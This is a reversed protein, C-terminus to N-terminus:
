ENNASLLATCLELIVSKLLELLDVDKQLLYKTSKNLTEENWDNSPIFSKINSHTYSSRISYLCSAIKKMRIRVDKKQWEVWRKDIDDRTYDTKREDALVLMGNAFKEQLEHSIRIEFVEKFNKSLGYIEDYKDCLALVDDKTTTNESIEKEFFEKHSLYTSSRAMSTDIISVYTYYVFAEIDFECGSYDHENFQIHDDRFVKGDEVRITPKNICILYERFNLLHDAFDLMETIRRIRAKKDNNACQRFLQLIETSLLRSIDAELDPTVVQKPYKWM